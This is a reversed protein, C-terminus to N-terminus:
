KVTSAVAGIVDIVENVLVDMLAAYGDRDAGAANAKEYIMAIIISIRFDYKVHSHPRSFTAVIVETRNKIEGRHLFFTPEDPEDGSFTIEMNASAVAATSLQLLRHKNRNDFDRLLTLPHSLAGRSPSRNYPQMYEIATRVGASLCAINRAAVSNPPAEWIPFTLSDAGVPKHNPSEYVVIAWLLHDLSCRLNHIIDSIQLSWRVIPPPEDVYVVTSYRTLEANRENVVRYPKVKHWAAVENDLRNLLEEARDLKAWM